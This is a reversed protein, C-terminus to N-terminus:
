NIIFIAFAILLLDLWVITCHLFMPSGANVISKKNSEEKTPATPELPENYRPNHGTVPKTHTEPQACDQQKKLDDYTGLVILSVAEFKRTDAFFKLIINL